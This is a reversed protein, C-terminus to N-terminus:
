PLQLVYLVNTEHARLPQQPHLVSVPCLALYLRPPAPNLDGVKLLPIGNFGKVSCLSLIWRAKSIMIRALLDVATSTPLGTLINNGWDQSTITAKNVFGKTDSATWREMSNYSGQECVARWVPQQRVGGPRQVWHKKRKYHQQKGSGIREEEEREEKEIREM